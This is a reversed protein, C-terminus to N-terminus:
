CSEFFCCKFSGHLSVIAFFTFHLIFNQSKGKTMISLMADKQVSLM